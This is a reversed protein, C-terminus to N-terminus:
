GVKKHGVVHSTKSAVGGRQVRKLMFYFIELWDILERSLGGM